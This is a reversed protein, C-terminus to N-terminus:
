GFLVRVRYNGGDSILVDGASDVALGVPNYLRASTGPGGDGYFGTRGTGAIAYIDGATMAQGYFTGAVVAVVGVRENGQDAIIVNGAQDVAVGAPDALNASTAPIGSGWSGATGSGAITYIDGATMAQGYFTGSVVAVVRVRFNGADNIIVNGSRDVALGGLSFGHLEASTAPGGDGSYGATGNGAITYIDGATMAQGYFTGTSAAIVRIRNNGSDNILVNGSTDVVLGAPSSLEASTAPGGDGSYGRTGNGAITYIDGATMAQGYFTGSVAAVVRVRENHTDGILVNGARDASPAAPYSLRAATGPGGDGSYGAKGNGAITYIDGATMAQGFRTGSNGAVIRIRNSGTDAIALDGSRTVALLGSDGLEADRAPHGDGSYFQYGNGAITYIDGAIMARGYFTGSAAALVRVRDNFTDAILVNGAQDTALAFPVHLKAQTAPRGNGVYGGAGTGAVTYIDGATMAQGYFTGSAGAVVRIVNNFTDAILVNGAHDTAVGVSEALTAETGPGGDGSYGPSGTGAITYIDGATMAQGYFTGTSAAIVRIRNNIMDAVVVNGVGDVALGEPEYLEATRAPIGDGNYGLTGTGAITYLQGATMAQGYFTGTSAAFVMVQGNGENSIVVNGSRDIAVGYAGQVVGVHLVYAGPVTVITYMHGATMAQGYFPGSTAALVRVQDDSSAVVLNGSADVAEGTVEGVATQTALRGKGRSIGNPGIGAAVHEFSSADTFTRVVGDDGVYVAGGPGAAVSEPRQAVDAALGRGAGGALTTIIGPSDPASVGLARPATAVVLGSVLGATALVGAISRVRKM